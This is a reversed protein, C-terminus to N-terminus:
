WEAEDLFALTSLPFSLDKPREDKVRKEGRWAQVLMMGAMAWALRPSLGARDVAMPLQAFCLKSTTAQVNPDPLSWIV